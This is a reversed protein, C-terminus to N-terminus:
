RGPRDTAKLITLIIAIFVGVGFIWYGQGDNYDDIETIIDYLGYAMFGACVLYIVISLKDKM